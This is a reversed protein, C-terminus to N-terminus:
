AVSAKSGNVRAKAAADFIENNIPSRLRDNNLLKLLLEITEEEVVIKGDEVKLKWGEEKSVEIMKEIYGSQKYYGAKLISAMKRLHRMNDGVFKKILDVNQFAGSVVFDNIVEASKAKMGERFNMSIEFERKNAILITGEYVFFDFRSNILFIEKDDVDMLKQEHFLISQKAKVKKPQTLTNIKCWAYLKESDKELFVVYAWSNLLDNYQTVLPNKFGGKIADEVKIFDTADASITFLTNDGDANNFDYEELHFDKSQLQQRLYGRFRNQLKDDTNARLVSYKAAHGEPRRKVLWFTMTWSKFDLAKIAKMSNTQKSGSM